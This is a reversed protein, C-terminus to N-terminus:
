DGASKSVASFHRREKGLRDIEDLQRKWWKIAEGAHEAKEAGKFVGEFLAPLSTSRGRRNLVPSADV